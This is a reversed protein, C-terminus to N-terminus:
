RYKLSFFANNIMDMRNRYLESLSPNQSYNIINEYAPSVVYDQRQFKKFQNDVTTRIQKKEPVTLVRDYNIQPQGKQKTQTEKKEDSQHTVATQIDDDDGRNKLKRQNYQMQAALLMEKTNNFAEREQDSYKEWNREIISWMRMTEPDVKGNVNLEQVQYHAQTYFEQPTPLRTKTPSPPFYQVMAGQDFEPGEMSLNRDAENKALIRAMDNADIIGREVMWYLEAEHNNDTRYHDKLQELVEPDTFPTNPENIIQEAKGAQEPTLSYFAMLQPVGLISKSKGPVTPSGAVSDFDGMSLDDVQQKAAPTFFKDDDLEEEFDITGIPSAYGDDDGDDGGDNGGDDDDDDGGDGNNEPDIFGDNVNDINFDILKNVAGSISSLYDTMTKIMTKNLNSLEPRTPMREYTQIKVLLQNFYSIIKDIEVVITPVNRQTNSTIWTTMVVKFKSFEDFLVKWNLRNIFPEEYDILEEIEHIISVIANVYLETATFLNNMIRPDLTQQKPQPATDTSGNYAKLNNMSRKFIQKNLIINNKGVDDGLIENIQKAHLDMGPKNPNHTPIHIKKKHTSKKHNKRSKRSKGGYLELDM